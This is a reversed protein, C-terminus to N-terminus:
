AGSRLLGSRRSPRCSRNATGCPQRERENGRRQGVVRPMATALNKALSVLYNNLGAVGVKRALDELFLHTAIEVFPNSEQIRADAPM